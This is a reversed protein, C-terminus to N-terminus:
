VCPCSHVSGLDAQTAQTSVLRLTAATTDALEYTSNVSYRKAEEHSHKALRASADIPVGTQVACLSPLLM